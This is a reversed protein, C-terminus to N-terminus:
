VWLDGQLLTKWAQSLFSGSEKSIKLFKFFLSVSGSMRHLVFSHSPHPPSGSLPQSPTVGFRKGLSALCVCYVRISFFVLHDAQFPCLGALRIRTLLVSFAWVPVSLIGLVFCVM